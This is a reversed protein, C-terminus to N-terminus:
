AGGADQRDRDARMVDGSDARRERTGVVRRDNDESSIRSLDRMGEEDHACLRRAMEAAEAVPM